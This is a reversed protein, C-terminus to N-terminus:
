ARIDILSIKNTSLYLGHDKERKIELTSSDCRTQPNKATMLDRFYM